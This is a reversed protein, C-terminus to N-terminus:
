YYRKVVAEGGKVGNIHLDFEKLINFLYEAYEKKRETYFANDRHEHPGGINLAVPRDPFSYHASTEILPAVTIGFPQSNVYSVTVTREIRLPYLIFLSDGKVAHVLVIAIRMVPADRHSVYSEIAHRCMTYKVERPAIEQLLSAWVSCAREAAEVTGFKHSALWGDCDTDAGSVYLQYSGMFPATRSRVTYRRTKALIDQGRLETCIGGNRAFAIDRYRYLEVGIYKV